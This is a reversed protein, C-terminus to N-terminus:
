AGALNVGSSERADEMEKFKQLKHRLTRPSIGLREAAEKKSSTHRLAESISDFEAQDRQSSLTNEDETTLHERSM